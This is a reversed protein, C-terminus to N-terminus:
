VIAPVGTPLGLERKEDSRLLRLAAVLLGCERPLSVM